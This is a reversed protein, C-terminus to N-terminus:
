LRKGRFLNLVNDVVTAITYSDTSKLHAIFYCDIFYPLSYLILATIFEPFFYRLISVYSQGHNGFLDNWVSSRQNNNNM